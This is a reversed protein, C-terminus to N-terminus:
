DAPQVEELARSVPVSRAMLGHLFRVPHGTAGFPGAHQKRRQELLAAQFAARCPENSFAGLFHLAGQAHGDGFRHVVADDGVSLVALGQPWLLPKWQPYDHGAEFANKIRLKQPADLDDVPIVHVVAVEPMELLMLVFSREAELDSRLRDDGVRGACLLQGALSGVLDGPQSPGAAAGDLGHLDGGIAPLLPVGGLELHGWLAHRVDPESILPIPISVLGVKKRAAGVLDPLLLQRQLLDGLEPVLRNPVHRPYVVADHRPLDGLVPLHGIPESLSAAIRNSRPLGTRTLEANACDAGV